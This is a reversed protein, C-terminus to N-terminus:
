VQIALAPLESPVRERLTDSLGHKRFFDLVSDIQGEFKGDDGRTDGTADRYQKLAIEHESRLWERHWSVIAPATPPLAIPGKPTEVVCVSFEEAGMVKQEVVMERTVGDCLVEFAVDAAEALGSVMSVAVGAACDAPKVVLMAEEADLEHEAM